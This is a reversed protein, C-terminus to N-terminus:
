KWWIRPLVKAVVGDITVRLQTEGPTNPARITVRWSADDWGNDVSVVGNGLVDEVMVDADTRLVGAADRPYVRFVFSTEGDAPFIREQPEFTWMAPEEVVHHEGAALGEVIQVYGTPGVIEIRHAVEEAMTAWFVMPSNLLDPSALSGMLQTRGYVGDAGSVRITAGIGISNSSTGRLSLSLGKGGGEIDNRLYLPSRGQGGVALDADGDRDPDGVTLSFWQGEHRLGLPETVDEFMYGGRSWSATIWQPGIAREPELFSSADDGHVALYEPRGDRDLDVFAIGWPLFQNGTEGDPPATGLWASTDFWPTEGRNALILYGPFEGKLALAISLDVLNDGDVDTVAAGMPQAKPIPGFSVAPDQKYQAEDPTPDMADFVPYGEENTGVEGYFGTAPAANTCARGVTHLLLGGGPLLPAVLVTYPDGSPQQPTILDTADRWTGDGNNLLLHLNGAPAPNRSSHECRRDGVVMDLLGDRDVDWVALSGGYNMDNSVVVDIPFGQPPHFGGEGDGLYIAKNGCTGLLDVVGDGDVDMAGFITGNSVVSGLAETWAEDVVLGTGDPRYVRMRSMECNGGTAHIWEDKGDQDLDAFVVRTREPLVKTEVDGVGAKMADVEPAVLSVFGPGWNTPAEEEGILWPHPPEGASPEYYRNEGGESNSGDWGQGEGGNGGGQGDSPGSEKRPISFETVPEEGPLSFSMGDWSLEPPAGQLPQSDEEGACGAACVLLALSLLSFYRKMAMSYRTPGACEIM